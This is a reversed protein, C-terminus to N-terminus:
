ANPLPAQGSANTGIRNGSLRNHNSNADLIIGWDNNGSILNGLKATGGSTDAGIIVNSSSTVLVGSHNPRPSDGNLNTGIKSSHLWGSSVGSFVVAFGKTYNGITLQSFEVNNAVTVLGHRSAGTGNIFVRNEGDITLADTILLEASPRVEQISPDFVIRDAGARTNAIQIRDALSGPGTGDAVTVILLPNTTLLRRPELKEIGLPRAPNSTRNRRTRKAVTNRKKPRPAKM